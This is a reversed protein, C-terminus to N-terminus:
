KFANFVIASTTTILTTTDGKDTANDCSGAPTFRYIPRRKPLNKKWIKKEM